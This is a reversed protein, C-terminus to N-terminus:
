FVATRICQSTPTDNGLVVVVGQTIRHLLPDRCSCLQWGRRCYTIAKVGHEHKCAGYAFPDFNTLERWTVGIRDCSLSCSAM